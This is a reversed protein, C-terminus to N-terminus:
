YSWRYNKENTLSRKKIENSNIRCGAVISVFLFVFGALCNIWPFLSGESGAVMLSMIVTLCGIIRPSYKKMADGM